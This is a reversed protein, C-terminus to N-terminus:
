DARSYFEIVEKQHSLPIMLDHVKENYIEMMSVTVEFIKTASKNDDIRNFIENAIRPVIGTNKDYGVISYSKGSGTQGYAFLCCHYGMWANDLIEKGVTDYVYQQDAYKSSLPVLLGDDEEKFDDHSWFSYDFAFKREKGDEGIIITTNGEMQVCLDTKLKIERSNFPRVRIAVKISM